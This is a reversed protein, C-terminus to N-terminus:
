ECRDKCSVRTSAHSCRVANCLRPLAYAVQKTSKKGTSVTKFFQPVTTNGLMTDVGEKLSKRSRTDSANM